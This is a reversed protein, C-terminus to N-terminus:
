RLSSLNAILVETALRQDNSIKHALDTDPSCCEMAVDLCQGKTELVANIIAKEIVAAVKRSQDNDPSVGLADFVGHAVQESKETMNM